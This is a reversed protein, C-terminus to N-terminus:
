KEYLCLKQFAKMAESYEIKSIIIDEENTEYIRNDINYAKAIKDVIVELDDDVKEKQPNHFQGIAM